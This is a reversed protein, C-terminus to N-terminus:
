ILHLRHLDFLMTQLLETRATRLFFHDGSFIQLRFDAVTHEQWAALQASDPQRDEQGGFVAIPCRLPDQAGYRYTELMTLDARLLPLFLELLEPERLVEAPIARYRQNLQTVLEPDSLRHLPPEPDALQPSRRAAVFLYEPMTGAPRLHRALEFAVLAGLSHGYFVYPRDLFPQISQALAEVLALLNTCPPEMMRNERGPFQAVCVEITPPLEDPWRAFAAAGGGAYPFCFLRVTAEPRPRTRIFWSNLMAM